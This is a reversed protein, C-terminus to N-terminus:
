AAELLRFPNSISFKGFHKLLEAINTSNINKAEIVERVKPQSISPIRQMFFPFLIPSSYIKNKDPFDPIVSIETQKKFEETYEFLWVGKELRLHGIELKKYGLAMDLEENQPTILNEHEESEFLRNKIQDITNKIFSM